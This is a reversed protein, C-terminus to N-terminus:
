SIKNPFHIAVASADDSTKFRPYIQCNSDAREIKRIYNLVAQLGGVAFLEAFLPWDEPERLDEKPLMFGDSMLIVTKLGETSITGHSIHEAMKPDGNCYGYTLNAKRRVALLQAEMDPHHRPDAVGNDSLTKWLELSEIDWDYYKGLQTIENNQKIAIIPSDGATLYELQTGKLRVAAITSSWAQGADFTESNQTRRINRNALLALEALPLESNQAFTQSAIQVARQGGTATESSIEPKILPSAGDFVAFLNADDLVLTSDENIGKSGVDNIVEIM